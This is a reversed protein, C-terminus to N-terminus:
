FTQLWRFKVLLCWSSKYFTNVMTQLIIKGMWVQQDKTYFLMKSLKGLAKKCLCVQRLCWVDFVNKCIFGFFIGWVVNRRRQVLALAELSGNQVTPLRSILKITLFNVNWFCRAVFALSFPLFCIGRLCFKFILFTIPPNVIRKAQSVNRLYKRTVKCDSNSKRVM